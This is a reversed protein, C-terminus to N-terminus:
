CKLPWRKRYGCRLRGQLAVAIGVAAAGLLAVRAGADRGTVDRLAADIGDAVCAQMFCM